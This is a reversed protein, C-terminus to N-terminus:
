YYNTLAHSRTAATYSVKHWEEKLRGHSVMATDQGTAESSTHTSPTRMAARWGNAPWSVRRGITLRAGTTIIRHIAAERVAQSGVTYRMSTTRDTGASKQFSLLMQTSIHSIGAAKEM